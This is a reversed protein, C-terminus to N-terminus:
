RGASGFEKEATQSTTRKERCSVVKRVVYLITIDRRSILRAIKRPRSNCTRRTIRMGVGDITAKAMSRTPIRTM